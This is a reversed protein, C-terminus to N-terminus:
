KGRAAKRQHYMEARQILMNWVMANRSAVQSGLYNTLGPRQRELEEIMDDAADLREQMKAGHVKQLKALEAARYADVQAASMGKTERSVKTITNVLSNGLERPFGADALWNRALADGQRDQETMPTPDGPEKWRILYDEPKAPPYARDIQKEADSRTDGARQEPTAQLQDFAAAAKEPSLKGKALDDRIWGIMQEAQAPSLDGTLMSSPSAPTATTAQAPTPAPTIDSM